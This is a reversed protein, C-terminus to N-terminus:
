INIPQALFDSGCAVSSVGAFSTDDSCCKKLHDCAIEFAVKLVLADSKM